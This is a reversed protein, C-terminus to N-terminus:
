ALPDAEVKGSGNCTPCLTHEDLLGARWPCDPCRVLVKEPTEEKPESPVTSPVNEPMPIDRPKEEVPSEEQIGPAEQIEEQTVEETKKDEM